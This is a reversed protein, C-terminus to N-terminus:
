PTLTARGKIERQLVFRPRLVRWLIVDVIDIPQYKVVLDPPIQCIRSCGTPDAGVTTTAVGAVVGGRLRDRAWTFGGQRVADAPGIPLRLPTPADENDYRGSGHAPPLDTFYETHPAGQKNSDPERLGLYGGTYLQEAVCSSDIFVGQCTRRAM